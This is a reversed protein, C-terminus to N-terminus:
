EVTVDFVQVRNGGESVNARFMDATAWGGEVVWARIRGSDSPRIAIGTPVTFEGDGTGLTGWAGLLDGQSNFVQVRDNLSDAVYVNGAEDLAIGSPFRFEGSERGIKGWARVFQGETTFVQVRHTAREVMYLLGDNGIAMGFPGFISGSEKGQEGWARLFEGEPSFVLVQGQGADAVYINGDQDFAIGHPSDIQGSEVEDDGGLWALFIGDETFKALRVPASGCACGGGASAKPDFDMVYVHGEGDGSVVMPLLLEDEGVVGGLGSPAGWKGLFQGGPNFRQVSNNDMDAVFLDGNIGITVGHPEKFQGDEGGYSGWKAVFQVDFTPATTPTPAVTATAVPAAASGAESGCGLAILVLASALVAVLGPQLGGLRRVSSATM